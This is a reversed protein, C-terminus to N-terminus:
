RDECFRMREPNGDRALRKTAPWSIQISVFSERNISRLKKDPVNAVL